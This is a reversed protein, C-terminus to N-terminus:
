LEAVNIFSHVYRQWNGHQIGQVVPVPGVVCACVRPSHPLPTFLVGGFQCTVFAQRLSNCTDPAADIALKGAKVACDVRSFLLVGQASM